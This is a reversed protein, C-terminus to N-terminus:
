GLFGFDRLVKQAIGFYEERANDTFQWRRDAKVARKFDSLSSYKMGGKENKGTLAELMLNDDLTVDQLELLQLMMTKYPDAIDEVTEGSMIRDSFNTYKAAASRRIQDLVDSDTITGTMSQQVLNGIQNKSFVNGYLRNYQNISDQLAGARGVLDADQYNIFTSAFVKTAQAATLGGSTVKNAFDTLQADSVNAGMAVAQERLWEKWGEVIRAYETPDQQKLAEALRQAKNRNQYWATGPISSAFREATWKERVAQQYLATLSPDSDILGKAYGLLQLGALLDAETNNPAM